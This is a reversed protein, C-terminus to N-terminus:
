AAIAGFAFMQVEYDGMGAGEGPAALTKNGVWLQKEDVVTPTNRIFLVVGENETVVNAAIDPKGCAVFKGQVDTGNCTTTYAPGFAPAAPKILEFSYTCGGQSCGAQYNSVLITIPAGPTVTTQPLAVIIASLSLITSLFTSFHM